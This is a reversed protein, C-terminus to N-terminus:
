VAVKDIGFIESVIRKLKSKAKSLYRKSTRESVNLQEAIEQHSYGEIEFLNFVLREQDELQDLITSVEEMEMAQEVDNIDLNIDGVSQEIDVQNSFKKNKRYEDIITNTLVRKTWARFSHNCDYKDLNTLIKFFALNVLESADEESSRYRYAIHMLARHEMEYLEFQAKRDNEKCKQILLLLDM